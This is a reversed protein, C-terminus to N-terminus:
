KVSVPRDTRGEVAHPTCLSHGQIILGQEERMGLGVALGEVMWIGFQPVRGDFLPSAAMQQHIVRQQEFDGGTQQLVDSGSRVLINHGERGFVPKTVWKGSQPADSEFCPLLAPHDPFLEWLVALMAKSSLLHRWPPEVFRCRATPVHRAFPENLMWDWPYIKWCCEIEQDDADVFVQSRRNWGVGHLAMLTAEIGAERVIAAMLHATAAVEAHRPRWACHVHHFGSSKWAEVLSQRLDNWQELAPLQTQQWDRQIIATEMLTLAADPNYEILKMQGQEDMMFDFRGSLSWDGREYSARLIPIHEEAIGCRHWLGECLVHAVAKMYLEHIEEATRKLDAVEDTTLVYAVEENWSCIGDLSHWTCGQSEILARWDPRPASSIRKM